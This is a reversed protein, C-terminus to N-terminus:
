TPTETTTPTSSVERSRKLIFTYMDQKEVPTIETYDSNLMCNGPGFGPMYSTTIGKCTPDDICAKKCAKFSTDPL